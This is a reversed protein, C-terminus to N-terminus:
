AAELRPGRAAALPPARVQLGLHALIKEIVTQKLIAAIIKLEGGCNPCHELDLGFRAKLSFWSTSLDHRLWLRAQAAAGPEHARGGLRCREAMCTSGQEEVLAGRRTLLKLILTVIKHPVAQMAEDSPAAVMRLASASAQAQALGTASLRHAM